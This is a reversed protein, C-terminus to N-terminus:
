CILKRYKIKKNNIIVWECNKNHEECDSGFSSKEFLESNYCESGESEGHPYIKIKWM